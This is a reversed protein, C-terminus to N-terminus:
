VVYKKLIQRTLVHEREEKGSGELFSFGLRMNGGESKVIGQKMM